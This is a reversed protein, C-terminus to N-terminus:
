FSGYRESEALDGKFSYVYALGYCARAKGRSDNLERYIDYAQMNYYSASDDKNYKALYAMGMAFAPCEICSFLILLYTIITIPLNPM